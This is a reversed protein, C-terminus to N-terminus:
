LLINVTYEITAVSGYVAMAADAISSTLKHFSTYINNVYTSLIHKFILCCFKPYM